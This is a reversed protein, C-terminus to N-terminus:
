APGLRVTRRCRMRRRITAPDDLPEAEQAPRARMELGSDHVKAPDFIRADSPLATYPTFDPHDAFMDSLDTSAADYQNLPPLGFILFFTKLISEMSTHVHSVGRQAYPSIVMLLSRHADVHDRGNQADDETVFIASDRWFPSHSLLEILKGLALDNDAVFSATYPFGDEPRPLATHDNPLWIYLFQPLPQKGSAYRLDFERKFQEFRHQDSIFLNFSAYSRSSNEFLAQPMPVNSAERVGTPMLGPGEDNGAMSVGEGYNRFSIQHRALHEWLSGAELFSEPWPNSALGGIRGPADPDARFQFKKGYTAPWGSEVLENPYNGVLWHHGDLSVDGDVYFNDSFAFQRALAHHNPTVRAHQVTPQDKEKVTADEGYRALSPEGNVGKNSAAMDGFVEDFTRNEKVIFIVHRIKDSAAGPPPLPFSASRVPPASQSVFGNNALVRATDERLNGRTVAPRVPEEEAPGHLTILAPLRIISVVGKTIDGIYTGEPGPQFNPGGNAGAGFGKASAVYLVMGDPRTAIRAPFWATPLYGLVRDSRADVVAIANIGACAVYLRTEDPSLAMGFPLVGRLDRMSEAPELVLTKEVHHARADLITISDQAANSVFVKKHGAVVAGPSSGGVSGAGVPIGTRIEATIRPNAADSVDVVFVSNSEPVNPDGLGPIKKGNVTTGEEAEKSPFGFPPFALGTHKAGKEDYGPVLSYEFMGVNSVYARKGDPSVALGFPTRGVGISSVIKRSATNITVMRFHALDLVYVRRDDPSVKLEGTLSNRYTKGQFEGDLSISDLRAGTTLDFIGVRGNDGESLYLTHNDHAIAVGLFVSELGADDDEGGARGPPPVQVVKPQDSELETIVSFSFPKTGSNATVLTKGDPSLALGYPHPAVWVHKGLPTLLRGNPLVTEAEPHIEVPRIGAPARLEPRQGAVLFAFSQLLMLASVLATRRM